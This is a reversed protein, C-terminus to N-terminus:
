VGCLFEANSFEGFDGSSRRERGSWDRWGDGGGFCVATDGTLVFYNELLLAVKAGGKFHLAMEPLKVKKTGSVNFCLKLGIM